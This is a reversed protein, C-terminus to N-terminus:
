EATSRTGARRCFDDLLATPGFYAQAGGPRLLLIWNFRDLIQSSPQHITCFVPTHRSVAVLSDVVDLAAPADLGTTAQSVILMRNPYLAVRTTYLYKTASSHLSADHILSLFPSM